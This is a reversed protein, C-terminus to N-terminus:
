NYALKGVWKGDVIIDSNLKDTIYGYAFLVNIESTFSILPSYPLRIGGFRVELEDLIGRPASEKVILEWYWLINSLHQHSLAIISIQIGYHTQWISADDKFVM